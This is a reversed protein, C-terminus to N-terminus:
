KGRRLTRVRRLIMILNVGLLRWDGREFYIRKDRM